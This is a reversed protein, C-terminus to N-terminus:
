AGRVVYLQDLSYGLALGLAQLGKEVESMGAGDFYWKDIKGNDARVKAFDLGASTM